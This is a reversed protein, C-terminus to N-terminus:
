AATTYLPPWFIYILGIRRVFSSRIFILNSSLIEEVPKAGCYMFYFLVIGVCSKRMFGAIIFSSESVLYKNVASISYRVM